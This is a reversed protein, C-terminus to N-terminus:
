KNKWFYRTFLYIALVMLLHIGVFWYLWDPLGLFGLSVPNNWSWFDQSLLFLFGFIIFWVGAKKM